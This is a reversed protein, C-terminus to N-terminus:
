NVACGASARLHTRGVWTSAAERVRSLSLPYSPSPSLRSPVSLGLLAFHTFSRSGRLGLPPPSSYLGCPSATILTSSSVLPVIQSQSPQQCHRWCCITSRSQTVYRTLDYCPRYAKIIYFLFIIFIIFFLPATLQKKKFAIKEVM